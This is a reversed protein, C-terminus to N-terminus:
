AARHTTMHAAAICPFSPAWGHRVRPPARAAGSGTGVLAGTALFRRAREADDLLLELEDDEDEEEEEDDDDDSLSSPLRRLRLALRRL